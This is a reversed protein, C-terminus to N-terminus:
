NKKTDGSGTAQDRQKGTLGGASAQRWWGPPTHGYGESVDYDKGQLQKAPNNTTKGSKAAWSALITGMDTEDKQFENGKGGWEHKVRGKGDRFELTGVTGPAGAPQVYRLFGGRYVLLKETAKTEGKQFELKLLAGGLRAMKSIPLDGFENAGEIFITVEGDTVIKSLYRDAPPNALDPIQLDTDPDAILKGDAKYFKLRSAGSTSVAAEPTTKTADVQMGEHILKLSAGSIKTNAPFKLVVKVVDDDNAKRYDNLNGTQECDRGTSNAASESDGNEMMVTEYGFEGTGRPVQAGPANLTGRKHAVIEMPLLYCLQYRGDSSPKYALLLGRDNLGIPHLGPHDLRQQETLWDPLPKSHGNVWLHVYSGDPSNALAMGKESVHSISGLTKRTLPGDYLQGPYGLQNAMRGQSDGFLISRDGLATITNLPASNPDLYNQSSYVAGNKLEYVEAIYYLGLVSDHEWRRVHEVVHRNSARSVFTDFLTGWETTTSHPAMRFASLYWQRTNWTGNISAPGFTGSYGIWVPEELGTSSPIHRGLLADLYIGGNETYAMVEWGDLTLDGDSTGGVGDDPVDFNLPLSQVIQGNLAQTRLV